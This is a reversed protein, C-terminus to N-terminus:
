HELYLEVEGHKRILEILEAAGEVGGDRLGYFYPLDNRTYCVGDRWFDYESGQVNRTIAHRLSPPLDNEPPDQPIPRWHLSASM